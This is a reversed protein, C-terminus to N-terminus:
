KTGLHCLMKRVVKTDIRNDQYQACVAKVVALRLIAGYGNDEESTFLVVVFLLIDNYYKKIKVFTTKDTKSLIWSMASRVYCIYDAARM